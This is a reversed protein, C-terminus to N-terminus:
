DARWIEKKLEKIKSNIKELQNELRETRNKKSINKEKKIELLVLDNLKSDDYIKTDKGLIKKRIIEMQVNLYGRMHWGGQLTWEGIILVFGLTLLWWIIDWGFIRIGNFYLLIIGWLASLTFYFIHTEWREKQKFRELELQFEQENM